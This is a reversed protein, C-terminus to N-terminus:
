VPHVRAADLVVAARGDVLVRGDADSLAFRYLAQRADGALRTAVVRLPGRADDLRPVHLRVQRASALLGQLPPSAAASCLAGHLAM